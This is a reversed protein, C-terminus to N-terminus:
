QARDQESQKARIAQARAEMSSAEEGRGTERLLDAYNELVQAVDPHEPGLSKELIALARQYLAEAEAYKGQALYLLGLNNLSTAM